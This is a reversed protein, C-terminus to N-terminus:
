IPIGPRSGDSDARKIESLEQERNGSILQNGGLPFVIVQRETGLLRLFEHATKVDNVGEVLLLTEGGLDQFASFNLEGLFEAYNPTASFPRVTRKGDRFQVTYIDNAVSRALGLSHTSFAIGESAYSALASLFSLQLSPHLNAEPEDILLISPNAMAANGLAVIFQAVGSGLEELRYTKGEIKVLLTKKDTAANIELRDFHFLNEIDRTVRDIRNAQDKNGGNKWADWEAVFNTGIKMDFHERAGENLVNRFPGFYRIGCFIRIVKVFEFGELTFNDSILRYKPMNMRVNRPTPLKDPHNHGYIETKVYFNQNKKLFFIVKNLVNEANNESFPEFIEVIIRIDHDNINHFIETGDFVASASRSLDLYNENLFFNTVYNNHSASQDRVFFEFFKRMEYFFRMLSSKGSNNPGVFAIVGAEGGLEFVAPNEGSFGRYNSLTIKVRRM